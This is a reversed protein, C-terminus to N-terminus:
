RKKIAPNGKSIFMTPYWCHCVGTVFVIFIYLGDSVFCLRFLILSSVSTLIITPNSKIATVHWRKLLLLLDRDDLIFLFVLFVLTQVFIPNKNAQIPHCVCTMKQGNGGATSLLFNTKWQRGECKGKEIQKRWSKQVKQVLYLLQQKIKDTHKKWMERLNKHFAIRLTEWLTNEGHQKWKQRKWRQFVPRQKWRFETGIEM